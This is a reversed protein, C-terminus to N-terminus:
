SNHQNQIVQSWHNTNMRQLFSIATMQQNVEKSWKPLANEICRGRSEIFVNPGDVLYGNINNASTHTGDPLFIQKNKATTSLSFGIIVCHVAAMDSAESVWKFTEYAFTINVNLNGIINRWLAAVSEGQCISNTAVFACHISSNQIFKASKEFWAGVYDVKGYSEKSGHFVLEM